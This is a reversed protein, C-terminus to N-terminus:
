KISSFIFLKVQIDALLLKAKAEGSSVYAEDFANKLMLPSPYNAVIAQAQDSSVLPFCELMDKWVNILGDSAKSSKEGKAECFLLNADQQKMEYEAVAKTYSLILDRLEDSTEYHRVCVSENLELEIVLANLETKSFKRGAKAGTKKKEM